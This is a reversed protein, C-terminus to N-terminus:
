RLMDGCADVLWKGDSNVLRVKIQRPYDKPGILIVSATKGDASASKITFSDPCDNGAIVPDGDLGVEPNQKFGDSIMKKLTRRFNMTVLPSSAVWKESDWSRSMSAKVYGNLFTKAVTGAQDAETKPDAAFGAVPTSLMLITLLLHRM